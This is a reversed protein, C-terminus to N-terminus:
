DYLQALLELQEKFKVKQMKKLSESGGLALAPVFSYCEDSALPGFKDILKLEIKGYCCRKWYSDTVINFQFFIDFNTAIPINTGKHVNVFSMTEGINLDEWIFLNGAASRAFVLAGESVDPFREVLGIYDDPNVTTFLGNRYVCFGHKKWLIALHNEKDRYGQFNDKYKQLLKESPRSYQQYGGFKEEFRILYENM